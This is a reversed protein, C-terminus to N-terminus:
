CDFVGRGQTAPFFPEAHPAAVQCATPSCLNAVHLLMSTPTHTTAETPSLVASWWWLNEFMNEAGVHSVSCEVTPGTNWGTDGPHAWGQPRLGAKWLHEGSGLIPSFLLLTM